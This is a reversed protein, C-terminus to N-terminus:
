FFYFENVEVYFKIGRILNFLRCDIYFFLWVELLSFNNIIRIRYKLSLLFFIM